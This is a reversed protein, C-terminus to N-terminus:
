VLRTLECHLFNCCLRQSLVQEVVIYTQEVINTDPRPMVNQLDPTALGHCSAAHPENGPKM